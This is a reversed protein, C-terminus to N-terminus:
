NRSCLFFYCIFFLIMLPWEIICLKREITILEQAKKGDYENLIMNRKQVFIYLKKAWPIEDIFLVKKYGLYDIYMKEGNPIVNWFFEKLQMHKIVLFVYRAFLCFTLVYFFYRM